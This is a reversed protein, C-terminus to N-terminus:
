GNLFFWRWDEVVGRLLVDDLDDDVEAPVKSPFGDDDDAM